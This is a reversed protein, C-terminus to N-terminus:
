TEEEYKRREARTALRASMIRTAKGRYAYSVVIIRENESRGIDLFRRESKSHDLDPITISLPDDFVTQAEEFGIKHKRLNAKAKREDWEFIPRM